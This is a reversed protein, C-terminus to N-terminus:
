VKEDTNGEGRVNTIHIYYKYSDSLYSNESFEVPSGNRDRICMEELATKVFPRGGDLARSEPIYITRKRGLEAM